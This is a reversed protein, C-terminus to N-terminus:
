FWIYVIKANGSVTGARLLPFDCGAVVSFYLCEYSVNHGSVANAHFGLSVTSAFEPKPNVTIM